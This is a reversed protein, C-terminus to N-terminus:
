NTKFNNYLHLVRNKIETILNADIVNDEDMKFYIDREDRVGGGDDKDFYGYAGYNGFKLIDTPNQESFDHCLQILENRGAENIGVKDAPPKPRILVRIKMPDAHTSQVSIRFEANINFYFLTTKSNRTDIDTALGAVEQGAETNLAEILAEKLTEMKLVVDYLARRVISKDSYAHDQQTIISSPDITKLHRAFSKITHLACSYIPNIEAMQEKEVVKLIANYITPDEKDNSSWYIHKKTDNTDVLLTDYANATHTRFKRPTIFVVTIPTIGDIDNRSETSERRELEYEDSLQQQSDRAAEKIKNEIIIRHFVVKDSNMLKIQIDVKRRIDTNSAKHTYWHEITIESGFYNNLNITQDDQNIIKILELLLADDMSHNKSEDILYGLVATINVERITGDGGILAEFINM